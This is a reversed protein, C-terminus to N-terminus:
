RFHTHKTTKSCVNCEEKSSGIRRAMDKKKAKAKQYGPDNDREEKNNWKGHMEM